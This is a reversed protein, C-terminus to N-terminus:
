LLGLLSISLTQKFLKSSIKNSSIITLFKGLMSFYVTVWTWSTCLTGYLIFRLLFILTNTAWDHGVRKSGMSQLRAPEETWPIKWALMSSCTAMGKELPDEWGLPWVWTQQMTFLEKDDSGLLFMSLHLNILSFFISYLYFSQFWCSFKGQPVRFLFRGVVCPVHTWPARTQDGTWSSEVHQPSVLVM